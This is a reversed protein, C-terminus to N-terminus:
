MQIGSAAHEFAFYPTPLSSEAMIKQRSFFDVLADPSAGLFGEDSIFRGCQRVSQALDIHGTQHMLAKYEELIQVEMEVGEAM